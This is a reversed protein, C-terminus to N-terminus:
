KKILKQSLKGEFKNRWLGNIKDFILALKQEFEKRYVWASTVSPNASNFM